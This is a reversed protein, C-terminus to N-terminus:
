VSARLQREIFTYAASLVAHEREGVIHLLKDVHAFVEAHLPLKPSRTNPTTGLEALAARIARQVAARRYCGCDCCDGYEGLNDMVAEVVKAEEM